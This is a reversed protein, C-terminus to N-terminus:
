PAGPERREGKIAEENMTAHGQSVHDTGQDSPEDELMARAEDIETRLDRHLAPAYETVARWVMDDDITRYDHAIRNRMGRIAQWPVAPHADLWENGLRELDAALRVISYQCARAVAIDADYAERGRAAYESFESLTADIYLLYEAEREDM